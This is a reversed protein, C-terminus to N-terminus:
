LFAFHVAIFTNFSQRNFQILGLKIGHGLFSDCCLVNSLHLVILCFRISEGRILISSEFSRSFGTNIKKKLTENDLQPLLLQLQRGNLSDANRSLFLHHAAKNSYILSSDSLSVAIVPDSISDYATAIL